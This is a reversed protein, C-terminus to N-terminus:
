QAAGSESNEAEPTNGARAAESLRAIEEHAGDFSPFHYAGYACNVKLLATDAREERECSKIESWKLFVSDQRSPEKWWMGERYLALSSQAKTYSVVARGLLFAGLVGLIAGLTAEWLFAIPFSAAILVAGVAILVAARRRKQRDPRVYKKVFGFKKAQTPAPLEGILELGERALCDYLRQKADTQVLAPPANKEAKNKSIYHAPIELVVSWEGKEKPVHRTCVSFFRMEQYPVYVVHGEEGGHLTVKGGGFTALTGEGVFFSNEGDCREAFDLERSLANQGLRSFLVAILAFAVAAGLFVGTLIYLLNKVDNGFKGFEAALLVGLTGFLLVIGLVACAFTAVTLAARRRVLSKKVKEKSEATSPMNEFYKM